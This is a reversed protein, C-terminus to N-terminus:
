RLILLILLNSFQNNLTALIGPSFFIVFSNSTKKKGGTGLSPNGIISDLEWCEKLVTKNEESLPDQSANL